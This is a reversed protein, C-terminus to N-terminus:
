PAWGKKRENAARNKDAKNKARGGIAREPIIEVLAICRIRTQPHIGPNTRARTESLKTLPERSMSRFIATQTNENNAIIMAMGHAINAITSNM